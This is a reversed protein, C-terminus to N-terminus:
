EQLLRHVAEVVDGISRATKFDEPKVMKGTVEKLRVIMDVADISDFDLDEYLKAEPVIAAADIEFMEVMIDRIAALIDERTQM